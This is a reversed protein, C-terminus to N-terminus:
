IEKETLPNETQKQDYLFDWIDIKKIVKKHKLRFKDKINKISVVNYKEIKGKPLFYVKKNKQEIKKM